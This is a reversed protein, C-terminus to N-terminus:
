INQGNLFNVTQKRVPNQSNKIKSVLVKDSVHNAFTNEANECYREFLLHEKM